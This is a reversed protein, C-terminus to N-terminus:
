CTRRSGDPVRHPIPLGLQRMRRAVEFGDLDPLMVDLLIVDPRVDAAM